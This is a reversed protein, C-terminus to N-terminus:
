KLRLYGRIYLGNLTEYLKQTETKEIGASQILEAIRVGDVLQTLASEIVPTKKIPYSIVDGELRFMQGESKVGVHRNLQVPVEYPLTGFAYSRFLGILGNRYTEADQFPVTERISIGLPHVADPLEPEVFSITKHVMNVRIGACCSISYQVAKREPLNLHGQAARGSDSYVYTSEPNNPLLEVYELEEASYLEMIQRFQALSRISIRLSANQSLEEEGLNRMLARIRKPYKEALATTTQPVNGSLERMDMLFAEYDPNDLPETAFYCPAYDVVPGLLERTIRIVDRWLARNEETYPFDAIWPKAALGCFPCQVRCGDSLEFCAPSFYINPHLRILHSEMRCRNRVTDAYRFIGYAAYQERQYRQAVKESVSRNRNVFEAVYPNRQATELHSEGNLIHRIGQVVSEPAGELGFWEFADKLNEATSKRFSPDVSYWELARKFRAYESRTM